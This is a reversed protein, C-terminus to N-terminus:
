KTYAAFFEKAPKGQKELADIAKDVIPKALEKM